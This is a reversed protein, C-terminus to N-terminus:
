ASEQVHPPEALADQMAHLEDWSIRNPDLKPMAAKLLARLRANDKELAAILQESARMM